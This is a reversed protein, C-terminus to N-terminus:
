PVIPPPITRPFQNTPVNNDTAFSNKLIAVLGWVSLIVFLGVVGWLISMGAAKRGEEGGAIFYRVVHYIIYIVAFSILLVVVTNGINTAKSSLDNINKIPTQALVAIPAVFSSLSVLFAILKKM